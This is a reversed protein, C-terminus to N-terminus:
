STSVFAQRYARSALSGVIGSSLVHVRKKKKNKKQKCCHSGKVQSCSACQVEPFMLAVKKNALIQFRTM